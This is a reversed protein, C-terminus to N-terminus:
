EHLNIIGMLAGMSVLERFSLGDPRLNLYIAIFRGFSRAATLWSESMQMEDPEEDVWPILLRDGTVTAKIDLVPIHEKDIVTQMGKEMLASRISAELNVGESPEGASLELIGYEFFLVPADGAFGEQYLVSSM